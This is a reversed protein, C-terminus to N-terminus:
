KTGESESRVKEVFHAFAGSEQEADKPFDVGDLYYTVLMFLRLAKRVVATKPRRAKKAYAEVWEWESPTFTLSRNIDGFKNTFM